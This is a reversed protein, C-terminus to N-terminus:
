QGGVRCSPRTPRQLPAGTVLPLVDFLGGLGTRERLRLDLAALDVSVRDRTVSEGLLAGLAHREDRTQLPVVTRGQAVLGGAEFRTRVRAWVVALAPDCAWEPLKASM